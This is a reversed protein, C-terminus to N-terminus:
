RVDVADVTSASVGSTSNGAYYLRWAGDETAKVTTSVKGGTGTTVKKVTSFTSSGAPRFQVWVKRGAYGQYKMTNWNARGLTGKITINAGKTVPEPSANFTSGWTTRRKLHLTVDAQTPGAEADSVVVLVSLKGAMGNSLFDLDIPATATYGTIFVSGNSGRDNWEVPFKASWGKFSCGTTLPAWTMEVDSLGVTVTSPSIGTITCGAAAAPEAVGLAAALSIAGIPAVV